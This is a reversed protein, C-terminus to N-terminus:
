DNIEAITALEMFQEEPMTYKVTTNRASIEKLFTYGEPTNEEYFKKKNTHSEFNYTMEQTELTDPNIYLVKSEVAKITRTVNRKTM